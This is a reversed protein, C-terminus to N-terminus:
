TVSEKDPESYTDQLTGIFGLAVQYASNHLIVSDELLEGGWALLREESVVKGLLDYTTSQAVVLSDFRVAPEIRYDLCSAKLHINLGRLTVAESDIWANLTSEAIFMRPYLPM